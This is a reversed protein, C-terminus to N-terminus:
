TTKLAQAQIIFAKNFICHLYLLLKYLTNWLFVLYTFDCDIKNSKVRSSYTHEM